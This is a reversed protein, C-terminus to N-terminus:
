RPPPRKGAVLGGEGKRRDTQPPRKGAVLGGLDSWSVEKRDDVPPTTPVVGAFIHEVVADVDVDDFDKLTTGDGKVDGDREPQRLHWGKSLMVREIKKHRQQM